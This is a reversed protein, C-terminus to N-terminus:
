DMLCIKKARFSCKKADRNFYSRSHFKHMGQSKQPTKEGTDWFMKGESMKKGAHQSM